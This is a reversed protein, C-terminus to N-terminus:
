RGRINWYQSPLTFPDQLWLRQSDQSNLTCPHSSFSSRARGEAPIHSILPCTHTNATHELCRNTSNKLKYVYVSVCVCLIVAAGWVACSNKAGEAVSQPPCFPWRPVKEKPLYCLCVPLFTRRGCMLASRQQPIQTHVSFHWHTHTVREEGQHVDQLGACGHSIHCLASSVSQKVAETYFRIPVRSFYKM